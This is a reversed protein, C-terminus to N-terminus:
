KEMRYGYGHVTNILNPRNLKVRLSRIHVDLTRSRNRDQGAWVQELIDERSVARGANRALLELVKFEKNTLMVPTGCVHVSRAEADLAVDTVMVVEDSLRASPTRGEVPRRGGSLSAVDVRLVLEGPRVPKVLYDDAGAHLARLISRDDGETSLVVLPATTLQRLGRIRSVSGVGPHALDAVIIDADRLDDSAVEDDQQRTPHYGAFELALLVKAHFADDDGILLVRM